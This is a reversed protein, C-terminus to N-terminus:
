DAMIHLIRNRFRNFNRVGFANRKLVKIKNNVGETYGNTFPFLFANLIYTQWRNFTECCMKFEPLKSIEALLNWELLRRKAVEINESKIFDYFKEKLMYANRLRDSIQLMAEVQLKEDETLTAFRKLLLRRSRKFYKRRDQHFKKQEEKRVREFAWTVQRVVHYKDAVITANKFCTAAVTRFLSSMDIVVVKVNARDKFSSFYQYLDESKRSPLIDLVQKKKPNTLICQFKSGGANGRFEDLSLVEPLKPTSYSVQDFVKAAKAPSVNHRQAISKISQVKRFEEVIFANLRSTTRHYKPLFSVKEFFRKNCGSCIYRRKRIHLITPKGLIALDKVNQLRYDHIKKVMLGCRPCEHEIVKMELYIHISDHRQDVKKLIVGKMGLLESICDEYLM